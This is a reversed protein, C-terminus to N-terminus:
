NGLVIKVVRSINGSDFKVIYIGKPYNQLDITYNTNASQTFIETSVLTGAISYVKASLSNNLVENLQIHFRNEKDLYTSIRNDNIDKTSTPTKMNVTIYPSPETTGTNNLAKVRVYYIGETLGTFDANFTFADTRKVTTGRPPFTNNKSLEAMFGKSNQNAWKVNLSTSYIEAGDAPSTISPVPIEMELTKFSIVESIAQAGNDNVIVRAFYTTESLLVQEPLTFSTTNLSKTFLVSSAPFQASSSIELTYEATPSLNMWEFTPTLSVGTAGDTPSVMKFKIGNFNFVESYIDPTNAKKTKVRWYYTTNELINSQLGSSFQNVATERAALINEFQADTAIEWVYSDAGTVSSWKFLTPIIPQSNNEPYILQVPVATALAEGLVRPSSENRYRDLVSVAIRHTFTSIGAPLTFQKAYSIDLLYNSKTYVAPDNINAIPVAYIAFKVDNREHTWTLVGANLAMNEVLTLDAVKKWNISPQIARQTFVNTKLYDVFSLGTAKTTAYFVSGPAGNLDSTRNADVQLGLESFFFNTATPAKQMSSSSESLEYQEIINRELESIGLTTIQDNLVSYTKTQQPVLLPAPPAGAGTMATLSHSSYFHKSFKNAVMSWWVALKDYPITGTTTWYIQPSIYDISGQNLWALPDSYIGNYQWDSGVPAPPVGYKAAVTPNSAAVGAPSIGFTVYPKISQIREYVAKIMINCNERRWDGRSLGDPNYLNYQAQDHADTTMGNGYFYDDFVIGDVDYKTVVEAVIDSIRKTVEPIGPNLIKVYSDYAILWEPNTNAYDNPLNGHTASSSSYRYPNLWAHLEMGRKHAEEVAFALPDWGPDAGRESSIFSSWNEFSSPYMADSMSRIQFFVTNMNATKMRDLIKILDAKQQNIASQRQTPTGSAPVTVSPWDLRWVTALWNARMERKPSQGSAPTWNIICFLVILFYSYKINKM